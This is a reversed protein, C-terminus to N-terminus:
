ENLNSEINNEYVIITYISKREECVYEFTIYIWAMFTVSAVEFRYCTPEFVSCKFM